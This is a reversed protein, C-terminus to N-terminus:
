AREESLQAGQESNDDQAVLPLRLIQPQKTESQGFHPHGMRAVNKTALTPDCSGFRFRSCAPDGNMRTTQAHTPFWSGLGFCDSSEHSKLLRLESGRPGSRV